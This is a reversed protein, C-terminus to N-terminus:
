LFPFLENATSTQDSYISKSVTILQQAISKEFLQKQFNLQFYWLLIYTTDATYQMLRTNYWQHITDTTDSM